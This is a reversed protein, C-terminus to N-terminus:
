SYFIAAGYGVVSSKDGSIDGSTAYSVIHSQYHGYQLAIAQMVAAIAGRGCAFGRKTAEANLIERPQKQAVADLIVQDLQQAEQQTYFHSLDSSAVYLVSQGALVDSLAFAIAQVADWSQDRMMLPVLAFKGLMLQLFPLEIEIAHEPDNKIYTLPLQEGLAHVVDKAIPITGLPTKYADHGSTLLPEHQPHHYPSILVVIPHQANNLYRFAHGAVRGSFRHGAHPVLMGYLNQPAYQLPVDMYHTMHQALTTPNDSYWKGAIPSPRVDM